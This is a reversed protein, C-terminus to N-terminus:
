APVFFGSERTDGLARLLVSLWSRAPTESLLGSGVRQKQRCDSPPCCGERLWETLRSTSSACTCYQNARLDDSASDQSVGHNSVVLEIAGLASAAVRPLGEVVTSSRLMLVGSRVQSRAPACFQLLGDLLQRNHHSLNRHPNCRILYVYHIVNRKYIFSKQGLKSVCCLRHSYRLTWTAIRQRQAGLVQIAAANLCAHPEKNGHYDHDFHPKVLHRRDGRTSIYVHECKLPDRTEWAVRAGALLPVM